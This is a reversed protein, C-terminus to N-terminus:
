NKLNGQFGCKKTLCFFNDVTKPKKTECNGLFHNQQLLEVTSFIKM